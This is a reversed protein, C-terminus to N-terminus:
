CSVIVLWFTGLLASWIGGKRMGGAPNTTLFEWSILSVGEKILYGIILVLPIVICAVMTAFIAKAIRERLRKARTQPTEGFM